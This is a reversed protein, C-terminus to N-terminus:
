RSCSISATNRPRRLAIEKNLDFSPMYQPANERILWGNNGIPTFIGVEM